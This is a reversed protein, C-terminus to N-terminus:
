FINYVYTSVLYYNYFNLFDMIKTFFLVQLKDSKQRDNM